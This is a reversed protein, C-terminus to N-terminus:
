GLIVPSLASKPEIAATAQIGLSCAAMESDDQKPETTSWGHHGATRSLRHMRCLPADGKRQSYKFWAPDLTDLDYVGDTQAIATTDYQLDTGFRPLFDFDHGVKRGLRPARIRPVM